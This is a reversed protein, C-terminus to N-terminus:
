EGNKRLPVRPVPKPSVKNVDRQQRDEDSSKERASVAHAAAHLEQRAPRRVRKDPVLHRGLPRPRSLARHGKLNVTEVDLRCQYPWFATQVRLVRDHPQARDADLIACDLLVKQDMEVVDPIIAAIPEELRLKHRYAVRSLKNEAEFGRRTLTLRDLRD